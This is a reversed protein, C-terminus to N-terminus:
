ECRIGMEVTYSTNDGSDIGDELTNPCDDVLDFIKYMADRHMRLVDYSKGWDKAIDVVKKLVESDRNRASLEDKFWELEGEHFDYMEKLDEINRDKLEEIIINKDHIIAQNAKIEDEVMARLERITHDQYDILKRCGVLKIETDELEEQLKAAIDVVKCSRACVKCGEVGGEDIIPETEVNMADDVEDLFARANVLEGHDCITGSVIEAYLMKNGDMVINGIVMGYGDEDDEAIEITKYVTQKLETM